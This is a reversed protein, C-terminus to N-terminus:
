LGLLAFSFNSFRTAMCAVPAESMAVTMVSLVPNLLLTFSRKISKLSVLVSEVRNILAKSAESAEGWFILSALAKLRFIWPLLALSLMCVISGFVGAGLVIDM